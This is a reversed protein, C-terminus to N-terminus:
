TSQGIGDYIINNNKKDKLIMHVRGNITENVLPVMHGDKPGMCLVFNDKKSYTKLLLIYKKNYTTLCIDNNYKKIQIKSLNMTTFKYFKNKGTVGILFGTFNTILFPFKGLSCTVSTSKERFNNIQIWIWSTPFSKGWNKEVYISGGTFDINKGDILLSGKISSNVLCVQSYCEMFSIYNYFGMSGPNILNDPWKQTNTFRLIGKISRSTNNSKNIYELNLELHNLSFINSTININFNTNNFKFKSVNFSLYNYELNYGDVIQIFCYSSKSKKDLDIGPIFAFKYKNDKDVIKFYWGEFFKNDKKMGHYLDPNIIPKM